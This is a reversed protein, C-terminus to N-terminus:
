KADSSESYVKEAELVDQETCQGRAILFRMVAYHRETLQTTTQRYLEAWDRSSIKWGDIAKNTLYQSTWTGVWGGFLAFLLPILFDHISM